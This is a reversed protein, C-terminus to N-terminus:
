MHRNYTEEKTESKRFLHVLMQMDTMFQITVNWLMVGVIGIHTRIHSINQVNNWASYCLQIYWWLAYEYKPAACMCSKWRLLMLYLVTKMNCNFQPKSRHALIAYNPYCSAILKATGQHTCSKEWGDLGAGPGVWGGPNFHDPHTTSWGEGDLAM